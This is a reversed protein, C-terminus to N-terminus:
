TGPSQNRGPMENFAILYRRGQGALTERKLLTELDTSLGEQLSLLTGNHPNQM